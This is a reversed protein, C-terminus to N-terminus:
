NPPGRGGERVLLPIKKDDRGQSTPRCIGNSCRRNGCCKLSLNEGCAGRNSACVKNTNTDSCSLESRRSSTTSSASITKVCECIIGSSPGFSREEVLKKLLCENPHQDKEEQVLIQSKNNEVIFGVLDISFFDAGSSALEMENNEGYSATLKWSGTQDSGSGRDNGNLGNGTIDFVELMYEGPLLHIRSTWASDRAPVYRPGAYDVQNIRDKSIIRFFTEEPYFDHEFTLFIEVSDQAPPPPSTGSPCENNSSLPNRSYFCIQETIWDHFKSVRIFGDPLEDPHCLFNWSVVGLLLNSTADMLPGGSDGQCISSGGNGHDNDNDNDNDVGNTNQNVNDGTFAPDACLVDDWISTRTSRVRETCEENPIYRFFGERLVDSSTGDSATKGFGYAKMVNNDNNDHTPISDDRNMVLHPLMPDVSLRLLLLDNHKDKGNFDPYRIQLDVTAERTFDNTLPDYLFLGYNFAGQCHAATLLMDDHILTAGCLYDATSEDQDQGSRAFFLASSPDVVVGNVIARRRQHQQQQAFVFSDKSSLLLLICGIIALM